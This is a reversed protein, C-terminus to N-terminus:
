RQFKVTIFPILDELYDVYGMFLPSQVERVFSCTEEDEAEERERNQQRYPVSRAPLLRRIDHALPLKKFVMTADKSTALSSSTCLHYVEDVQPM